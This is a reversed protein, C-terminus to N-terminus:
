SIIGTWTLKTSNLPRCSRLFVRHVSPWYPQFDEPKPNKFINFNKFKKSSEQDVLTM